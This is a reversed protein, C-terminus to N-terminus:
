GALNADAEARAGLVHVPRVLSCILRDMRCGPLWYRDSLSRPLGM